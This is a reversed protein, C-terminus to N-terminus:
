SQQIQNGKSQNQFRWLPQLNTFHCAKKFQEPDSLNFSDLPIIHDIHWGYYTYNTWNMDPQFKNELYKRFYPISCGLDRVASGGKQSRKIASNIRRRLSHAIKFNEDKDRKHKAYAARRKRYKSRNNNIYRKEYKTQCLKCVNALGDKKYKNKYFLNKFKSIKCSTCEKLFEM